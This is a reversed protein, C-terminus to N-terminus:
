RATQEQKIKSSIEELYNQLFYFDSEPSLTVNKIFGQANNYEGVDITGCRSLGIPTYSNGGSNELPHKIINNTVDIIRKINEAYYVSHKISFEINLQRALDITTRTLAYMGYANSWCKHLGTMIQCVDPNPIGYFEERNRVFDVLQHFSFEYYHRLNEIVYAVHTRTNSKLYQNCWDDFHPIEYKPHDIV